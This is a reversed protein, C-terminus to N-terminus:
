AAAAGFDVVCFCLEGGKEEDTGQPVYDALVVPRRQGALDPVREALLAWVGSCPFEGPASEVTVGSPVAVLEPDLGGGVFLSGLGGPLAEGLLAHADARTLGGYQRVGIPAGPGDASLLLAAAGDRADEGQRPPGPNAPTTTQDMVAVLARGARGDAAYQGALRLATYPAADGQDCLAFGPPTGPLADTLYSVGSVRPEFDPVDSAVVVLDFPDPQPPLADLLGRALDSFTNRNAREFREQDFVTGYLQAMDSYIRVLYPDAPAPPRGDFARHAAGTLRLTM